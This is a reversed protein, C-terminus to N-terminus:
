PEKWVSPGPLLSSPFLAFTFEQEQHAPPCPSSLSQWVSTLGGHGEVRDAPVTLRSIARTPPNRQSGGLSGGGERVSGQAPTLPVPGDSPSCKGAVRSALSTTLLFNKKKEKRKVAKNHWLQSANFQGCLVCNSLHRCIQVSMFSDGCDLYSINRGVVFIEQNKTTLCKETPIHHNIFASKSKIM